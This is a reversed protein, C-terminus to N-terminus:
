HLPPFCFWSVCLLFNAKARRQRPAHVMIRIGGDQSADGAGAASSWGGTGAAAAAAAAPPTTAGASASDRLPSKAHAASGGAFSPGSSRAGRENASASPAIGPSPHGPASGNNGNNSGTNGTNSGNNSGNHARGGGVMAELLARGTARLGTPDGTPDGTPHVGVTSAVLGRPAFPTPLVRGSRHFELPPQVCALRRGAVSPRTRRPAAPVDAVTPASGFTPSPPEPALSAAPTALPVSVSSRRDPLAGLEMAAGEGCMVEFAAALDGASQLSVLPSTLHPPAVAGGDAVGAAESWEPSIPPAVDLAEVSDTSELYPRGAYVTSRPARDEKAEANEDEVDEYEEEEEEEEEEVLFPNAEREDECSDECGEERSGERGEDEDSADGSGSPRLRSSGARSGFFDVTLPPMATTAATTAPAIPARAVLGMMASGRRHADSHADRAAAATHVTGLISDGFDSPRRPQTLVTARVFWDADGDAAPWEEGGGHSGSGPGESRGGGDSSRSGGLSEKGGIKDKQKKFWKLGKDVLNPEDKGNGFLDGWAHLGGGGGGGSGGGGGRGGGGRKAFADLRNPPFAGLYAAAAAAPLPKQDRRPARNPRTAALGDGSGDVFRRVRAASPVGNAMAAFGVLSAVPLYLRRALALAVSAQGRV